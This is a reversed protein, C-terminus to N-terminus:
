RNSNELDIIEKSLEMERDLDTLFVTLDDKTVQLVELSKKCPHILGIGVSSYGRLTVVLNAISVCHLLPELPANDDDPAHHHRVCQLVGKPLRWITGVQFGLETHDWGLHKREVECLTTQSTLSLIIQRFSDTCHQDMLIIGIDHLLGALFANEFGPIRTRAAIMRACIGTAALHRWLRQRDYTALSQAPHFLDVLAASVALDRVRDSGLFAIAQDVSTIEHRLGHAASSVCRLVSACLARDSEVVVKLDTAGSNGAVELVRLAVTPLTSIEDIRHAVDEVAIRGIENSSLGGGSAAKVCCGRPLSSTISPDVTVIPLQRLNRSGAPWRNLRVESVASSQM